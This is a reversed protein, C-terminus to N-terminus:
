ETKNDELVKKISDAVKAANKKFQGDLYVSMFIINIVVSILQFAVQTEPDLDKLLLRGIFMSILNASFLGVSFKITIFLISIRARSLIKYMAKKQEETAEKIKDLEEM